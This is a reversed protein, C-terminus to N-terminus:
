KQPECHDFCFPSLMLAAGDVNLPKALEVLVAVGVHPPVHFFSGPFLEPGGALTGEKILTIAVLLAVFDPEVIEPLLRLITTM